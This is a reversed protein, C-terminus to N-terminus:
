KHNKIYEADMLTENLTSNYLKEMSIILNFENKIKENLIIAIMSHGGVDLFNEDISITTKIMSELLMIYRCLADLKIENENKLRVGAM